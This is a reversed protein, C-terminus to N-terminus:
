SLGFREFFGGRKDRLHQQQQQQQQQFEAFAGALADHHLNGGLGDNSPPPQIYMDQRTMSARLLLFNSQETYERGMQLTKSFLTSRAHNEDSTSKNVRLIKNHSDVRALIAGEQILGVVEKEIADVHCVFATAMRPLDVVDFPEIYLVVARRRILKMLADVHPNLYLDLLLIQKLSALATLATSYQASYFAALITSHLLAPDPTLDIFARVQPSLLIKSHLDARSLTALGLVVILHAVDAASVVENWLSFVDPSVTIALLAALAQSYHAADLHVLAAYLKLKAQFLQRDPGQSQNASVAPQNQNATATPASAGAADPTSEAKVVYSLVSPYNLLLLSVHVVLLCMDQVHRPTSCFDRSRSYTKLASALDGCKACHAALELHALRISEKILNAKYAKLEADLRDRTSHAARAAAAVWEGLADGDGERGDGEDAGQGLQAAIRRGRAVDYTTAKVDGLAALLAERRVGGLTATWSAKGTGAVSGAAVTQGILQAIFELRTARVSSTTQAYSNAYAAIDFVGSDVLESLQEGNVLTVKNEKASSGNGNGNGVEKEREAGYGFGEGEM